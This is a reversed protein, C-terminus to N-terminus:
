EGDLGIGSVIKLSKARVEKLFEINEPTVIINGYTMSVLRPQVLLVTVSNMRQNERPDSWSKQIDELTSYTGHVGSTSFLIFNCEDLELEKLCQLAQESGLFAFNHYHAMGSRAPEIRKRLETETM